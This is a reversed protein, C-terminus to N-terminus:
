RLAARLALEADIVRCIAAGRVASPGITEADKMTEALAGKQQTTAGGIAIALNSSQQAILSLRTSRIQRRSPSLTGLLCGLRPLSQSASPDHMRSRGRLVAVM